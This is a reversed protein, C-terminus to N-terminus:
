VGAMDSRVLSTDQREMRWAADRQLQRKEGGQRQERVRWREGDRQDGVVIRIERLRKGVPRGATDARQQVVRLETQAGGTVPGHVPQPLRSPERRQHIM